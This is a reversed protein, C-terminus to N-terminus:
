KSKVKLNLGFYLLKLLFIDTLIFIGISGFIYNFTTWFILVIFYFFYLLVSYPIGILAKEYVRRVHWGSFFMFLLNWWGFDIFFPGFLSTYVGVRPSLNEIAEISFPENLLKKYFRYYPFFTYIGLSHDREFKDYVYNFEFISHVYYQSINVFAFGLTGLSNDINNMIFEKAKSSPAITFNYESINLSHEYIVDRVGWEQLRNIFMYSILSLFILIGMIFSLWFKKNIVIKKFYLLYLILFAIVLLIASRSSLLLLDFIQVFFLLYVAFTTHWKIKLHYYLKVFLPFFAFSSILSAIIAVFNGGKEAVLERGEFATLNLSIGRIFFKDYFKCCLGIFAIIITIRLLTYPNINSIRVKSANLPLFLIIYYGIFFFLISFFIYIWAFWNVQIQIELPAILYFLLWICGGIFITRPPSISRIFKINKNYNQLLM